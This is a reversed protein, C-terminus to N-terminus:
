MEANFRLNPCESDPTVKMKTPDVPTYFLRLRSATSPLLDYFQQFHTVEEGAKVPPPTAMSEISINIERMQPEIRMAHVLKGSKDRFQVDTSTAFSTFYGVEGLGSALAQRRVAAGSPDRFEFCEPAKVVTLAGARLVVRFDLRESWNAVIPKLGTLEHMDPVYYLNNLPSSPNPSEGTTDCVKTPKMSPSAKLANTSPCMGDPCIQVELGSLEWYFKGLKPTKKPPLYPQKSIPAPVGNQIRLRMRHENFHSSKDGHPRAIAGVDVRKHSDSFVFAHGGDIFMKFPLPQAARTVAGIAICVLLVAAYRSM